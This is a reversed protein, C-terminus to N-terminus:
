RNLSTSFFSSLRRAPKSTLIRSYRKVSRGALPLIQGLIVDHRDKEQIHRIDEVLTNTHVINPAEIGHLIMNMIGIIYALNKKEKGYFTKENLTQLNETTKDM